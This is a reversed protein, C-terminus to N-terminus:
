YDKNESSILLRGNSKKGLSTGRGLPFYFRNYKYINEDNVIM